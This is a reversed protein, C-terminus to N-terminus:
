KTLGSPNTLLWNNRMDKRLAKAAEMIQYNKKAEPPYEFKNVFESFCSLCLKWKSYNWIRVRREIVNRPVVTDNSVGCINCGDRSKFSAKSSHSKRPIPRPFNDPGHTWRKAAGKTRLFLRGGQIKKGLKIIDMIEHIFDHCSRCLVVLDHIGTKTLPRRYRLHHVDNSISQYNCIECKADAAVLKKLRLDKWHDSRLYHFRYNHKEVVGM